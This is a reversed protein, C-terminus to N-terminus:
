KPVATAIVAQNSGPVTVMSNEPVKTQNWHDYVGYLLVALTAIDTAIATITNGDIHLQTALPALATLLLKIILSKIEDQNM